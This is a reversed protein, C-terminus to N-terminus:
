EKINTKIIIVIAAIIAVTLITLASYLGVPKLHMFAGVGFLIIILASINAAIKM